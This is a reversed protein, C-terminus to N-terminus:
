FRILNKIKSLQIRIKKSFYKKVLSLFSIKKEIESNPKSLSFAQKTRSPSVQPSMMARKIRDSGCTPCSLMKTKELKDFADLSDFWSSFTHDNNCKLNYHIM